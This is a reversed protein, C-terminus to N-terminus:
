LCQNIIDLHKKAVIDPSHTKIIWERSKRGISLKFDCITDNKTWLVSDKDEQRFIQFQKLSHDCSGDDKSIKGSLESYQGFSTFSTLLLFGFLSLIKAM